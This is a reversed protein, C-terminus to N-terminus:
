SRTQHSLMESFVATGERDEPARDDSIVHSVANILALHTFAQPFNGWHRGSKGDLEEAYLGLPGAQSLLRECGERALESEGIESLASVLWFSCITFSAEKGELGDDTQDVRYRLVLGDQKLEESIAKVTNVVREDDPPLFRVLPVLLTSADLADTGYHQRFVGRDSVGNELIDSRIEEAVKTWRGLRDQDGIRDALRAGRDLAVWCMLKSSVYHQPDGRAEWIGQDPKRWVAIAAEVQRTLAEWLEHPLHDQVKSHIYVSDLLAGYVDNQRQNYAANGIRVPKAGEYGSLHDLTSETLDQEGGIGYMIQLGSTGERRKEQYVDSLWGMFDTAEYDLGLTHLSWLTFTADRIWTFRYDWNREGGPTEPLSTTLAAIMAGTPSYTLGKLVLASRQLYGRWPHDPFNGGELWRRWFDVTRHQRKLCDDSTVPPEPSPGWSLASFRIEGAKMRHRARADPGDVGLPLDGTLILHLNKHSVEADTGGDGRRTWELRTAGYDFVPECIMEIDVEGQLCEVTRVLIHEAEDDPPPRRHPEFDNDRRWDGLTLADRVVVWGSGTMWTTELVNTGPEYRRSVPAALGPPGLRWFGASRDLISGFVSDSDFRPLCLWEVSGDQSILAGTHCDSLFGYGSIRPFRSQLSPM